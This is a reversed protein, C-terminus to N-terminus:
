VKAERLKVSKIERIRKKTNRMFGIDKRRTHVMKVLEIKTIIPSAIPFIREVGIGDAVKRVTMTKSVGNGGVKLVLGEFVQIREKEEGKSNVDQIKQHIRITMGTEIQSPQIVAPFQTIESM